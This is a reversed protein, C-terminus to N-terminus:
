SLYDIIIITILYCLFVDCHLNLFLNDKLCYVVIMFLSESRSAHLLFEGLLWFGNRFIFCEMVFLYVERDMVILYTSGWLM